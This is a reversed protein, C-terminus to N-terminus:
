VQIRDGGDALRGAPLSRLFAVADRDLQRGQVRAVLRRLLVPHELFEIRADQPDDRRRALVVDVQGEIRLLGVPQRERQLQQLLQRFRRFQVGLPASEAQRDLGVLLAARRHDVLHGLQRTASAPPQHHPQHFAGVPVGLDLAGLDAAPRVIRDVGGLGRGVERVQHARVPQQGGRRREVALEGGVVGVSQGGDSAQGFPAADAALPLPQVAHALRQVGGGGRAPVVHRQPDIRRDAAVLVQQGVEHSPEQLVAGVGREDVGQEVVVHRGFNHSAIRERGHAGLTARVRSDGLRAVEQQGLAAAGGPDIEADRGLARPEGLRHRRESCATEAGRRCVGSDGIDVIRECRPSAGLRGPVFGASRRAGLGQVRDGVGDLRPQRLQDRQEGAFGALSIGVTHGLHALRGVETAVVARDGRPVEGPRPRQRTRDALEIRELEVPSANKDGDARPVKRKRDEGTLDRRRQRGAVSHDGLRGLLGRADGGLRHPQEM